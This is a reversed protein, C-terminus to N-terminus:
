ISRKIYGNITAHVNGGSSGLIKPYTGKQCYYPTALSADVTQNAALELVAIKEGTAAANNAGDYLTVTMPTSGIGITYGTVVVIDDSGVSLAVASGNPYLLVRANAESLASADDDTFDGHFAVEQGYSITSPTALTTTSESNRTALRTGGTFAYSERYPQGSVAKTIAM